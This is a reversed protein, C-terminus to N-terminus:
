EVFFVYVGAASSAKVEVENGPLIYGVCGEQLDLTKGKSIVSVDGSYSLLIAPGDLPDLYESETEALDIKLVKFEALPPSYVRAKGNRCRDFFEAPLLADRCTHPQFTLSALFLDINSREVTPCFGANLMNNSRAMCEIIDGSLYAHIGDAPIYLSQGPSLVMYNM